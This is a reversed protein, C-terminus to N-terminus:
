DSEITSMYKGVDDCMMLGSMICIGSAGSKRVSDANEATIGGIAYVPISVRECVNKLFDLGRGPVGKKCDTAFIHGATVYTCGLREAELAEEASHCSAGIISFKRRINMDMSRLLNMPLHIADAGIEAAEAAFTHLICQVENERCIKMIKVALEAYECAPLDKERLIIASPRNEAIKRIRETFDERCLSRNTVCIIDSM